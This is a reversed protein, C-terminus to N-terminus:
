PATWASCWVCGDLVCKYGLVNFMGSNSVQDHMITRSRANINIWNRFSLATFSNHLYFSSFHKYGKICLRWQCHRYEVLMFQYGYALSVVWGLISGFYLHITRYTEHFSCLFVEKFSLLDASPFVLARDLLLQAPSCLPFLQPLPVQWPYWKQSGVRSLFVGPLCAPLLLERYPWSTM